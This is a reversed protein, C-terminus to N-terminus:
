RGCILSINEVNVTYMYLQLPPCCVGRCSLFGSAEIADILKGLGIGKEHEFVDGTDQQCM